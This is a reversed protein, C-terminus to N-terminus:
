YVPSVMKDHQIDNKLVILRNAVDFFSAVFEGISWNVFKFLQM